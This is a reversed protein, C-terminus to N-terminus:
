RSELGRAETTLPTMVVVQGTRWPERRTAARRQGRISKGPGEHDGRKGGLV